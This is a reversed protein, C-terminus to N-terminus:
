FRCIVDIGVLSPSGLLGSHGPPWYVHTFGDARVNEM